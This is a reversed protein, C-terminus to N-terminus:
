LNKSPRARCIRYAIFSIILLALIGLILSLFSSRKQMFQEEILPIRLVEYDRPNYIVISSAEDYYPFILAFDTENLVAMGGSLRKVIPDSSDFNLTLPVDFKFSHLADGAISVVEATYGSGPQLRRDPSYGCKVVKDRYSIVGRDYNFRVVFVRSCEVEATAAPVLLLALLLLMWLRM